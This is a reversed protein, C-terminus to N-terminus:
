LKNWRLYLEVLYENEKINIYPLCKDTLNNYSLDLIKLTKPINKVLYRISDDM